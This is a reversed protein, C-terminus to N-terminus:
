EVRSLSNKLDGRYNLTGDREYLQTRPKVFQRCAGGFVIANLIQGISDYFSFQEKWHEETCKDYVETCDRVIIMENNLNNFEDFYLIGSFKRIKLYNGLLFTSRLLITIIIMSIEELQGHIM